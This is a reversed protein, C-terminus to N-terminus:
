VNEQEIIYCIGNEFNDPNQLRMFEKLNGSINRILTELTM